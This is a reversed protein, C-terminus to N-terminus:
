RRAIIVIEKPITGAVRVSTKIIINADKYTADAMIIIDGSIAKNLASQLEAVSKVEINKAFINTVSVLLLLLLVNLKKM